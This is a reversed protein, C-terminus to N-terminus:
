TCSPNPRPQVPGRRRWRTSSGSTGYLPACKSSAPCGRPDARDGTPGRKVWFAFAIPRDDLNNRREASSPSCASALVANMRISLRSSTARTGSKAPCRTRWALMTTSTTFPVGDRMTCQVKETRSMSASPKSSTSRRLVWCNARTPSGNSAAAGALPLPPAMMSAARRKTARPPEQSGSSRRSRRMSAAASPCTDHGRTRTTRHPKNSSRHRDSVASQALRRQARAEGARSGALQSCFCVPRCKPPAVVTAKWRRSAPM